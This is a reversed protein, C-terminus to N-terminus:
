LVKVCMREAVHHLAELLDDDTLSPRRPAARGM